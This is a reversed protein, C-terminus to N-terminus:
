SPGLRLPRQPLFGETVLQGKVELSPALGLNLGEVNGDRVEIPTKSLYTLGGAIVSAFLDYSGTRIGKLEFIGTDDDARAQATLLGLFPDRESVGYSSRNVLALAISPSTATRPFPAVVRGTIKYVGSNAADLRFDAFADIGDKLAIAAARDANVTGPFYTITKASDRPQIVVRVYHDGPPLKTQRYEGLDNTKATAQVDWVRRGDEQLVIRLFEVSIGRLPQGEADTIRGSITSTPLLRLNPVEVRQNAVARVSTFLSPSSSNTNAVFGDRTVQVTVMGEPVASFAFHGANDTVTEAKYSAPIQQAVVRAGVIPISTGARVVVGEISGTQAQRTQASLAVTMLLFLVVRTM